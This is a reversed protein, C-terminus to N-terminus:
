TSAGQLEIDNGAQRLWFHMGMERYLNVAATFHRQEEAQSRARTNCLKALGMECHALLPRMGCEEAAAVAESYWRRAVARGSPDRAASLEALSKLVWGELGRQRRTRAVQLAERGLQLASSQDGTRLLAESLVSVTMAHSNRINLKSEMDKIPQLLKVARDPKGALLHLAGLLPAAVLKYHTLEQEECMHFCRQLLHSADGVNGQRFHARGLGILAYALNAGGAPCLNEAIELSDTGVKIADAFEGLESLSIALGARAYVSPFLLFDFRRYTLDGPLLAIARRFASAADKHRGLGQLSAGLSALGHAKIGVEESKRSLKSLAIVAEYEGQIMRLTIFLSNIRSLRSSDNISAALRLAETLLQEVRANAALPQLSLRLELRYDVADAISRQSEPLQELCFIANELFSQAERHASRANASVGARYYYRAASAWLGGGHAHHALRDLHAEIKDAFSKEFITLLRAHLSRRRDKIISGYTVEHTLGHKFAYERGRRRLFDASRLRALSADLETDSIGAIAKLPELAFERGIVSAAQLLRRDTEQLRNIRASLIAQVTEPVHATKSIGAVEYAGRRERLTGDDILSRASEELFLPNGEARRILMKKMPGLSSHSGLLATLLRSAMAVCLPQLPIRYYHQIKNWGDHHEPRYNVVLLIRSTSIRAALSDLLMKSEFDLWHLDHVLLVLPGAASEKLLLAVVAELTHRRKEAPPLHEWAESDSPAGLLSLIAPLFFPTVDNRKITTRIKRQATAKDDQPRIDLLGHLLQVFTQLPAPHGYSAVRAELVRWQRARVFHLFECCLRSKGIGADGVVAVISGVGKNAEESIKRLQHLQRERGVIPIINQMNEWRSRHSVIGILRYLQLPEAYGPVELPPRAVCKLMCQSLVHTNHGLLTTGPPALQHVLSALQNAPGIVIYRQASDGSAPKLVVEGSDLGLRIHVPKDRAHRELAGHLELAACGARIAHDEHATPAGFIASLGDPSVQNVTGDYRGIVNKLEPLAESFLTHADELESFSSLDLSLFLITVLRREGGAIPPVSLLGKPPEGWVPASLAPPQASVTAEIENLLRRTEPEPQTSLQQRLQEVFRAAHGLAAEKSRHTALQKILLRQAPENLPDLEVWQEATKIAETVRGDANFLSVLQQFLAAAKFALRSRQESLWEDFPEVDLMFDQLLHGSYLEAAAALSAPTDMEALRLFREVDIEVAV